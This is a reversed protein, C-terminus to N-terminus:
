LIFIGDPYFYKLYTPSLITTVSAFFLSVNISNPVRAPFAENLAKISVFTIGSKYSPLTPFFLFSREIIFLEKM